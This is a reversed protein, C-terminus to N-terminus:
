RISNLWVGDSNWNIWVDSWLAYNLTTVGCLISTHLLLSHKNVRNVHCCNLLISNKIQCVGRMLNGRQTSFQHRFPGLGYLELLCMSCMVNKMLIVYYIIRIKSKNWSISVFGSIKFLDLAETCTSSILMTVTFYMWLDVLNLTFYCITSMFLCLGVVAYPFYFIIYLVWLLGKHLKLTFNYCTFCIVTNLFCPLSDSPKCSLGRELGRSREIWKGLLCWVLCRSIVSLPGCQIVSLPRFTEKLSSIVTGLLVM